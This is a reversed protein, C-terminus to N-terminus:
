GDGAVFVFLILINLGDIPGKHRAIAAGGVSRRIAGAVLLSGALIGVLKLGLGLPSLTLATGFFAYAFLPATFPVLVTSTILTILALTSDLGMVAALAPAAMMPSAVAQLMLALFLDPSHTDLGAVLCGVGSILPVGLM